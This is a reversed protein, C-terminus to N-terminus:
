TREVYCEFPDAVILKDLDPIFVSKCVFKRNARTYTAVHTNDLMLAHDRKRFWFRKTIAIETDSSKGYLAVKLSRYNPKEVFKRLNTFNIDLRDGNSLLMMTNESDIGRKYQRAPCRVLMAIRKGYQFVAKNPLVYELEFPAEEHMSLTFDDGNVTTGRIENKAVSEIYFLTDGFGQFKVYTGRFYREIDSSNQPILIM